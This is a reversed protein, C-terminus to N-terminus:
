RQCAQTLRSRHKPAARSAGDRRQFSSSEGGGSLSWGPQVVTLRLSAAPGTRPYDVRRGREPTEWAVVVV